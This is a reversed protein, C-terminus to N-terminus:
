PDPTLEHIMKKKTEVLPLKKGDVEQNASEGNKDEKWVTELLKM